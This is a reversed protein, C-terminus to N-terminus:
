GNDDEELLKDYISLDVDDGLQGEIYAQSNQFEKDIEIFPMEYDSDKLQLFAIREVTKMDTIRYKLARKITKIFISPALKRYLAFLERIFRHKQIGKPKLAFNLYADVQESVARLKKEEQETSRKRDKPKHRPITQGKPSFTKNKIGDPPLQYETLLERNHYIKICNCYQLVVVDHRKTGPIWYYNADFPIYGYQDIGRKHQLYPPSVFPPLKVLYSKEHEFAKAPILGTKAVARNPMRVTAWQFAQANLDELSEFRRGPFFNTEVTYFSRENGAKRNAHNVEHCLFRFGYQKAFQEMEPVIVANKGTGRLRALNTNDIICQGSAYGWHTLAEHFFCKMNFRNFARYFKMYRIKSYRYYLISAVIWLRKDGIKLKYRTTDHQMEVGPEDPVSDCRENRPQGLELERIRRTLTSYGIKIGEEETLKEYIRQIRGGCELYLSRLLDPDIKVTDDRKIEPMRGRQDIIVKVTNRSVGLQRSIHRESIGAEHLSYIAKRMDAEIM